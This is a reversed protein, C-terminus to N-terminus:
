NFIRCILEGKVMRLDAVKGDRRFLTDTLREWAVALLYDHAEKRDVFTITTHPAVNM